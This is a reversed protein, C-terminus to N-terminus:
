AEGFYSHDVHMSGMCKPIPMDQLTPPAYQYDLANHALSLPLVPLPVSAASLLCTNHGYEDLGRRPTENKTEHM